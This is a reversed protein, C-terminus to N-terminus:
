VVTQGESKPAALRLYVRPKPRFVRDRARWVEIVHARFKLTSAGLSRVHTRNGDGAGTFGTSATPKAPKGGRFQGKFESNKSSNSAFDELVTPTPRSSCPISHPVQEDHSIPCSGGRKLGTRHVSSFQHDIKTSPSKTTSTM